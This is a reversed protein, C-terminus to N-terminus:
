SSLLQFRISPTYVSCPKYLACAESCLTLSFCCYTNLSCSAGEKTGPVTYKCVYDLVQSHVWMDGSLCSGLTFMWGYSGTIIRM